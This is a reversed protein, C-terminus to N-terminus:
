FSVLGRREIENLYARRIEKIRDLDIKQDYIRVMDQPGETTWFYGMAADFFNNSINNKVSKTVEKFEEWTLPAPIDFYNKHEGALDFYIGEIHRELLFTKEITILAVDNIPKSRRFDIGHSILKEQLLPIEEFCKLNKIRICYYRHEGIDLYGYTGNCKHNIARSIKQLTRALFMHEYERVLILFISRPIVDNPINKGYYGPYPEYNELVMSNSFIKESLSQVKEEKMMVGRTEIIKAVTTM